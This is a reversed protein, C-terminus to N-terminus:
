PILMAADASQIRARYRRKGTDTMCWIEDGISGDQQARAQLAVQVNGTQYFLTIISGRSVVPIEEALEDTLVMGKRINRRAQLHAIQAADSFIQGRLNTVEQEVVDFLQPSLPEDVRIDQRAVLVPAFVKVRASYSLRRVVRQNQIAEIRFVALGRPLRRQGYRVVISDVTSGLQWVGIHSVWETEYRSNTNAYCQELYATIKQRIEADAVVTQAVAPRSSLATLCILTIFINRFWMTM